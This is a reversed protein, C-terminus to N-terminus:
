TRLDSGSKLKLWAILEEYDHLSLQYLLPRAFDIAAKTFSSTTVVIGKTAKKSQAIGYIRQVIEIGVKRSTKYRKCEIVYLLNGFSDRRAAYIDIGGDRTSPTLDTEFGQNRFISAILQEFQRPQISYLLEPRHRLESLLEENLESVLTTAHEIKRFEYLLLHSQSLPLYTSWGYTFWKHTYPYLVKTGADHNVRGIAKQENELMHRQCLYHCHPDPISIVEDPYNTSRNEVVEYDAIAKCGVVSCHDLTDTM